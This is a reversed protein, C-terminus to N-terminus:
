KVATYSINKVFGSENSVCIVDRGQDALAFGIIVFLSIKMLKM